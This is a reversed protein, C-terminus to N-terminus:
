HLKHEGNVSLLDEPHGSDAAQAAETLTVGSGDPLKGGNALLEKTVREILAEADSINEKAKTLFEDTVDTVSDVGNINETKQLRKGDKLGDIASHHITIIQRAAKIIPHDEPNEYVKDSM